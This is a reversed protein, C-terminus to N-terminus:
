STETKLSKIRHGEDLVVLQFSMRQWMSKLAPAKIMEYTTVVVDVNFFNTNDTQETYSSHFLIHKLTPAWKKIEKM